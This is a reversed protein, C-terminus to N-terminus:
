MCIYKIDLISANLPMHFSGVFTECFLEASQDGTEAHKCCDSDIECPLNVSSYQVCEGVSTVNDVERPLDLLARM